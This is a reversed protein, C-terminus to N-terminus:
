RGKGLDAYVFIEVGLIVLLVLEVWWLIPISWHPPSALLWFALLASVGSFVFTIEDVILQKIKRRHRRKDSRHEIEWGFISPIDTNGAHESIKEVLKVRIYRGIASIKEDNVLYAWGLILCVWPLVLLAYIAYPSKSQNTLAFSLVAGFVVLIVYLLNDRFGIRQTQEDKLKSYEQLYVEFRQRQEDSM